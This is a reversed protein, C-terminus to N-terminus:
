DGTAGGSGAGPRYAAATYSFGPDLRRIVEEGVNAPLEFLGLTEQMTFEPAAASRSIAPLEFRRVLSVYKEPQVEPALVIVEEFSLPSDEWDLTLTNTGEPLEFTVYSENGITGALEDHIYILVEPPAPEPEIRILTLRGLRRPPVSPEPLEVRAACGSLLFLMLIYAAAKM